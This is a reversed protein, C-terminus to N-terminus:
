LFDKEGSVESRLKLRLVRDLSEINCFTDALVFKSNIVDNYSGESKSAGSDRFKYFLQGDKVFYIKVKDVVNNDCGFAHGLLHYYKGEEFDMVRYQKEM